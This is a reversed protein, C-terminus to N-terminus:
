PEHLVALFLEICLVFPGHEENKLGHVGGAFVAYDLMYHGSEIGLSALNEAEFLGRRLAQGRSERASVVSDARVPRMPM